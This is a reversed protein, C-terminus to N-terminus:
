EAVLDFSVKKKVSFVKEVQVIKSGPRLEGDEEWKQILAKMEKLTGFTTSVCYQPEQVVDERPQEEDTKLHIGAIQAIYATAKKRSSKYTPKGQLVRQMAGTSLGAEKRFKSITMHYTKCFAHIKYGLSSLKTDKRKRPNTHLRM